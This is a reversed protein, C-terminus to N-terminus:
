PQEGGRLVAVSVRLCGGCRPMSDPAQVPDDFAPNDLEYDRGCMTVFYREAGMTAAVELEHARTWGPKTFWTAVEAIETM